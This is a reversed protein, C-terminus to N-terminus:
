AEQEFEGSMMTYKIAEFQYIAEKFTLTDNKVFHLNGDKTQFIVMCKEVTDGHEKLPYSLTEKIDGANGASLIDDLTFESM